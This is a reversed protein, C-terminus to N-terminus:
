CLVWYIHVYQITLSHQHYFSVSFLISAKFLMIIIVKDNNFMMLTRRLSIGVFSNPDVFLVSFFCRCCHTYAYFRREWKQRWRLRQGSVYKHHLLNKEGRKVTIRLHIYRWLDFFALHADSFTWHVLVMPRTICFFSNLLFLARLLLYV